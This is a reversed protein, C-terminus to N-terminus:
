IARCENGEDDDDGTNNEPIFEGNSEESMEADVQQMEADV